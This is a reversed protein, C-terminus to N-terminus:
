SRGLGMSPGNDIDRQVKDEYLAQASAAPSVVGPKYYGAAYIEPRSHDVRPRSAIMHAADTAVTLAALIAAGLNFGKGPVTKMNVETFIKDFLKMRQMDNVALFKNYDKKSIEHSIVNGDIVASM